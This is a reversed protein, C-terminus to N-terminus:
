LTVRGCDFARIFEKVNPFDDLFFPGIQGDWRIQVCSVYEVNVGGAILYRAVPCDDAVGPWGGYKGDRLVLVPDVELASLLLEARERTSTM